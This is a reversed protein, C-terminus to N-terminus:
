PIVVRALKREGLVRLLATAPQAAELELARREPLALPIPVVYTRKGRQVCVWDLLLLVDDVAVVDRVVGGFVVGSLGGGAAFEVDEVDGPLGGLGGCV